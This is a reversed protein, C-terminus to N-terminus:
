IIKLINLYDFFIRKKKICSLYFENEIDYVMLGKKLVSTPVSCLELTPCSNGLIGWVDLITVCCWDTTEGRFYWLM